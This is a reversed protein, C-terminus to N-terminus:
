PLRALDLLEKSWDHRSMAMAAEHKNFIFIKVQQQCFGHHLLLMVCSMSMMENAQQM